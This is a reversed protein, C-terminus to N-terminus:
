RTTQFVFTAGLSKSPENAIINVNWIMNGVICAPLTIEGKYTDKKVRKLSKEILGMNMNTAFVKLSLKELNIGKTTVNLKIPKMLPITKPIISLTIVSGNKLNVSCAKNHLDCGKKQKAFNTNGVYWRYIDSSSILFYAGVSLLLITELFLLKFFKRTEM